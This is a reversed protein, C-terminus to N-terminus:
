GIGGAERPQRYPDHLPDRGDYGGIQRIANHEVSGADIVQLAAMSSASPPLGAM